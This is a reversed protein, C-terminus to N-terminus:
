KDSSERQLKAQRRRNIGDQKLQRKVNQKYRNAEEKSMHKLMEKSYTTDIREAESIKYTTSTAGSKNEKQKTKKRARELGDQQIRHVAQLHEKAKKDRILQAREQTDLEATLEPITNSQVHIDAEKTLQPNSSSSSPSTRVSDDNTTTMTDCLEQRIEEDLDLWSSKTCQVVDQVYPETSSEVVQHPIVDEKGLVIDINSSTDGSISLQLVLEVLEDKSMLELKDKSLLATAYFCLLALCLIKM